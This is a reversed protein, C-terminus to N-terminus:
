NEENPRGTSSGSDVLDKRIYRKTTRLSRHGLLVQIDETPQGQLHLHMAFTQRLLQPTLKQSLTVKKALQACVKNLDFKSLALRARLSIFVRRSPCEPRFIVYNRYATFAPEPFPVIREHTGPVRLFIQDESAKEIHDFCINVVEERRLGLYYLLSIMAHIQKGRLDSTQGASATFALLHQMDEFTLFRSIQCPTDLKGVGSVASADVLGQHVAWVYFSNLAYLKRNVTTPKLSRSLLSDRYQEIQERTCALLQQQASGIDDLWGRFHALDRAYERLTSDSYGLLHKAHKMYSVVPDQNVGQNSVFACFGFLQLPAM